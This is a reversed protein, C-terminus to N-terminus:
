PTSTPAISKISLNNEVGRVGPVQRALDGARSKEEKSSVNGKLTVVSRDTAVNINTFTSLRDGTLKKQVSATLTSDDITQGSTKGPASRCASLTGLLSLFACSLVIGVFKPISFM